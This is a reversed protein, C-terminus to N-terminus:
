REYQMNFRLYRISGQRVETEFRDLWFKITALDLSPLAHNALAAGAGLLLKRKLMRVLSVLSASEDAMAQIEFGATTFMELYTEQDVADALCTWPALVAAIDDPLTGHTAMDTVALKGGPKLIGHTAMDTVALKGGPKLVRRIEALVKHQERFLSFTCEAILGDLESDKFPLDHADARCFRVTAHEPNLREVAREINAASIDVASVRLDYDRALMIATTGTGCGLDAIAAGAPLNMAALTKKTLEVGGPHFIDEALHRVWDQEYFDSCCSSSGPGVVKIQPSTQMLM